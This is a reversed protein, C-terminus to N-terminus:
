MTKHIMVILAKWILLTFYCLIVKIPVGNNRHVQAAEMQKVNDCVEIKLDGKQGELHSTIFPNRVVTRNKAALLNTYFGTILKLFYCITYQDILISIRMKHINTAGLMNGICM